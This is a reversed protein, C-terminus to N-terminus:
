AASCSSRSSGAVYQEVWVVETVLSGDGRLTLTRFGPPRRDVAFDDSGPLFQVCTSPTALLRVGKREGDYRQHVHGWLVARVRPHRDLVEFLQAANDLGVGDLWRSGVDVPQHHLCVLCPRQGATALAQELRDLEAEDLHGRASGPICSNLLLIRWEGLDVPGRLIFPSSGLERGMALAEDHNGPLCLVPVGLSGLLRRVHEYGGPDDQVLDGTALVADPGGRSRICALTAELSPLTAIGHITGSATSLLHLDTLQILRLACMTEDRNKRIRTLFRLLSVPHRSPVPDRQRSLKLGLLLSARGM